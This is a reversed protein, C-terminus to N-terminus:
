YAVHEPLGEEVPLADGVAPKWCEELITQQVWEV